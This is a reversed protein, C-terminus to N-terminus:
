AQTMDPTISGEHRQLAHGDGRDLAALIRQAEPTANKATSLWPREALDAGTIHAAAEDTSIDDLGARRPDFRALADRPTDATGNPGIRDPTDLRERYPTISMADWVERTVRRDKAYQERWNPRDFAREADVVRTDAVAPRQADSTEGDPTAPPRPRDAM